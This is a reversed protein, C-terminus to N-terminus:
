SANPRDSSLQRMVYSEDMYEWDEAILGNEVRHVLAGYAIVPRGTPPEGEFSGLHTGRGIWRVAVKDGEAIMEEITIQYDPLAARVAAAGRRFSEISLQSANNHHIYDKSVLTELQDWDAANYCEWFKQIVVKNSELM